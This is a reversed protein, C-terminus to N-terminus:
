HGIQTPDAARSENGAEGQVQAIEAAEIQEFAPYKSRFRGWRELWQELTLGSIDGLEIQQATALEGLLGLAETSMRPPSLLEALNILVVSDSATAVVRRGDTSIALSTVDGDLRLPPAVLKGTTREWIHLAGAQVRGATLIYRGDATMAVAHVEDRHKFPPCALTGAGWDWLRAQGDKSGTLLLRGDPSFALQFLGFHDGPHLLPHSLAHGDALSWVQAANKGNVATALLQSDASLAFGRCPGGQLVPRIPPYRLRGTEADHVEISGARCCLSVLSTGDGTYEVRPYPDISGQWDQHLLLFVPEGDCRDFVLLEGNRCLVAVQRGGPRAAISQPCGSLKRPPFLARGTAVDSFTLWGGEGDQSVTAVSRNDACICSDYPRGATHIVPGAPKCTQANLVTVDMSGLHGTATEHWYGPALLLNDFSLRARMSTQAKWGTFVGQILNRAPRKWVRIQGDPRATALYSQDDSFTCHDVVGQHALPSGIAQGDPLSWLRATQDWSATLVTTGDPSFVFDMVRNAHPLIISNEAGSAAYWVQAANIGFTAFSEGRPGAVVRNLQNPTTVLTGPRAPNGSEADWWTLQRDGTITVMGWDDDIFAPASPINPEHRVPAFLPDPRGEAASVAYVRAKGDRCATAIRNGKSNFTMADVVQPHPLSSPTFARAWTDWIRLTTGAIALYHGDPSYSLATITGPHALRHIVAGDTVTRIQVEGSGLGVALSDGDRSWCAAGVDLNTDFWDRTEDRRWDRVFLRRGTQILLLDHRPCFEIRRPSENLSWAGVPLVADRAWNRARLRNDAQRRPDSAAQQAAKAFWLVALAADDRDGAQLGRSTQMDVLTTEARLLAAKNEDALQRNRDALDTMDNILGRQLIAQRKYYVASAISGATMLVLFLAAVALGAALPKNRRGWRALREAPSTRRAQIPENNLHRRLDTALEGASAYRRQKNKEMAKAVITEVDGRFRTDISGLRAPEQEIISRAVEPLPLNEHHFPLRGALLQFLLVGLAYVDTRLDLAAPDAGLQEPSMYSLTGIVQGIETRGTITPLAVDLARAVGFDLVKPQGAEDVLINAPKLDRHIVGREHAHHVADSVRALLGLRATPELNHRRAYEDLEVGRIFEMAFFPQGNDSVGAEYIQAIGPHHLRGLFQAERGFRKILQPSLLGHRMMKLAVSRLPNDQEAEYVTGMSGEGLVRVIRYKGIRSPSAPRLSVSTPLAPLTLDIDIRRMADRRLPSKLFAGQGEDARLRDDDELLRDIESRLETNGRCADNLLTQREQAPLDAARDFMAWLDTRGESRHSPEEGEDGHDTM